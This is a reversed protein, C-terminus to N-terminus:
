RDTAHSGRRAVIETMKSRLFDVPMVADRPKDVLKQEYSNSILTSCTVADLKRKEMTPIGLEEVFARALGAFDYKLGNRHMALARRAAVLREKPSVKPRVVVVDVGKAAEQLPLKRIGSELRAEVINGGGVYIASHTQEGQLGKSVATFAHAAAGQVLGLDKSVPKPSMLVIDGPRLAKFEEAYKLIWRPAESRM